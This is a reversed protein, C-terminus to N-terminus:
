ARAMSEGGITRKSEHTERTRVDDIFKTPDRRWLNIITAPKKKNMGKPLVLYVWWGKYEVGEFKPWDDITPPSGTESFLLNEFFECDLENGNALHVLEHFLEAALRSVGPKVEKFCHPNIWVSEGGSEGWWGATEKSVFIEVTPPKSAAFFNALEEFLDIPLRKKNAQVQKRIESLAARIKVKNLASVEKRCVIAM